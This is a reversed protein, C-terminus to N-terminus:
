SNVMDGFRHKGHERDISQGLLPCAWNWKNKSTADRGARMVEGAFASWRQPTQAYQLLPRHSGAIEFFSLRLPGCL